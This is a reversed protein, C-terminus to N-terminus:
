LYRSPKKLFRHEKSPFCNKQAKKLWAFTKETISQRSKKKKCKELFTKNTYKIEFENSYTSLIQFVTSLKTM